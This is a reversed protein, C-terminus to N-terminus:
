DHPWYVEVVAQLWRYLMVLFWLTLPVMLAITGLYVVWLILSEIM